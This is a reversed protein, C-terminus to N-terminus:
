RRFERLRLSNWVVFFSSFAMAAGAILPNLLGAVAVPIAAVNYGFAWVMNGRITRLTAHALEIADPVAGLEERVLIIDAAGIAVDTGRGIALGLDAAVLAPGDNIGDGVMAVRHGQRQLQRIVDVKGEPMVEAIVEDIGVEDAIAQAARANDGTLLLTRLGLGHLRAVAAGATPRVTDAVAFVAVARGDLCFYVATRGCRQERALARRLDEPVCVGESEILASRGILAAHGGVTGRAGLGPLAHFETVELLEGGMEGQNESPTTLAARDSAAVVLGSLGDDGPKGVAADALEPQERGSASFGDGGPKGVAPEALELKPASLGDDGPTAVERRAWATIAAAVAHESASELGGALAAIERDSHEAATHAAVVTMVGETLTGTKDFVVTDITRSTELAQQGKIFVGLQAGRGAGVMLAAPTALGLACPCAIVLVALGAGVAKDLGAGSILWAALTVAAIGLVVPVFVGAIRDALRQLSAKGAQAEEVLRIMAALRTDAGVAGAEVILRGTLSITGGTVAMGPGVEIPVSEGTMASADISSHGEVVLGDTAVTEGPRVMFRRGETLEEVPVTIESGDGSLVTVDKAGLAALARLAGGARRRAKAEFYRGALVFVTVGGAVELYISDAGLIAAWVGHGSHEPAPRGFLTVVSWVTAATIGISVLTEMSTSGTRLGALAKRHLPAASWVVIPLALALLIFQWGTIRTSSVTAFMISLDALPFFLLLAVVLRRFLDAAIRDEPGTDLLTAAGEVPTAGFGIDTVKECLVNPDLQPPADVTAVGTAFNVSATVGDFRNLTREVRSSCAACSMGSVALRLRVREAAPDEVPAITNTM